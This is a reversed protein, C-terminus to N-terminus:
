VMTYNGAILGATPRELAEAATPREDPLRALVEEESMDDFLPGGILIEVMICGVAWMDAAPGYYGSDALQEPSSYLLTSVRSEEYPKVPTAVGFDCLKLGGGYTVLVHEPKIDRHMIGAAHLAKAAGVLDRM